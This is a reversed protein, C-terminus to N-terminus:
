MEGPKAQDLTLSELERELDDAAKAKATFFAFEEDGRQFKKSVERWYAGSARVKEVCKDRMSTAARNMADQMAKALEQQNEVGGQYGLDAAIEEAVVQILGIGADRLRVATIIADTVNDFGNLEAMSLAYDYGALTPKPWKFNPPAATELDEVDGAAQSDSDLLSVSVQRAAEQLERVTKFVEDQSGRVVLPLDALKKVIQENTM